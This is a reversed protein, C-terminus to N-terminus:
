GYVDIAMCMGELGFFCHSLADFESKEKLM